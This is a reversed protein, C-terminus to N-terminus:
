FCTRLYYRYEVLLRFAAWTRGFVKTAPNSHHTLLQLSSRGPYVGSAARKAIRRQSALTLNVSRGVVEM